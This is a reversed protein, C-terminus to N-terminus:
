VYLAHAHPENSRFAHMQLCLPHNSPPPYYVLGRYSKADQSNTRYSSSLSSMFM